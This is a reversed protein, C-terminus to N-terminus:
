KNERTKKHRAIASKSMKLKTADSRSRSSSKVLKNRGAETLQPPCKNVWEPGPSEFARTKKDLEANYWWRMGRVQTNGKMRESAKKATAPLCIRREWEANSVQDEKSGFDVSQNVFEPSRVVDFMKAFRNGIKAMLADDTGTWLVETEVENGHQQIHRLWAESSGEYQYPDQKTQGLYKLYTRAHTKIYLYYM